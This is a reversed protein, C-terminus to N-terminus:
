SIDYVTKNYKEKQAEFCTLCITEGFYDTNDFLVNGKCDEEKCHERIVEFDTNCNACILHNSTPKNPSLFAWKSEFYGGEREIDYKCKPCYYSRGKIDISIFKSLNRKGLIFLAFDLYEFSYASEFDSNFYGFLPNELLNKRLLSLWSDKGFWIVFTKLINEIIYKANIDANSTGHIIKNRKQRVDDIFNIISNDIPIKANTACFTTLLSEGSLTYLSDYDKNDDNPLTPWDKRPKDILLLPSIECISSKMLGEIAQHLLILSTRLTGKHYIWLNEFSVEEKIEEDFGNYEEYVKCLLNFAQTLNEKAVFEFDDKTPINLIM